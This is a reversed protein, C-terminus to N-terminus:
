TDLQPLTRQCFDADVVSVANDSWHLAFSFPHLRVDTYCFFYSIFCNETSNYNKHLSIRSDDCILFFYILYRGLSSTLQPFDKNTSARTTLLEKKVPWCWGRWWKNKFIANVVIGSGRGLNATWQTGDNKRIEWSLNLSSKSHTRDM